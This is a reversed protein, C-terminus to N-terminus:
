GAGALPPSRRDSAGPAGRHPKCVLRLSWLCSFDGQSPFPGTLLESPHTELPQARQASPLVTCLCSHPALSKPIARRRGCGPSGLDASLGSCPERAHGLSSSNFSSVLATIRLSTPTDTNGPPGTLVCIAPGREWLKQDLLVPHPRFVHIELLNWPGCM